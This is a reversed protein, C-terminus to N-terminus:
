NKGFFTELYFFSVLEVMECDVKVTVLMERDGNYIYIRPGLAHIRPCARHYHLTVYRRVRKKMLLWIALARPSLDPCFDLLRLLGM